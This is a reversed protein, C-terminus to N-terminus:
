HFVNFKLQVNKSIKKTYNVLSICKGNHKPDTYCEYNGYVDNVFHEELTSHTTVLSLTNEDFPQKELLLVAKGEKDSFSGELFISKHGADKNLVRKVVFDNLSFIGSQKNINESDESKLINNINVHVPGDVGSAM